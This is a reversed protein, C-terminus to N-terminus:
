GERHVVVDVDLAETGEGLRSGSVAAAGTADLAMAVRIHREEPSLAICPDFGIWGIREVYAEAWGHPSPRHDDSELAYGSVYRAPAGLVRAGAIFLHALDRPTLQDRAFAEAATLGPEPRTRAVEFREGLAANLRHLRDLLDSGGVRQAWETIEEDPATLPTHRLFLPPPLPEVAGHVVGGSHSTLVEGTVAVELSTVPGEVYLMTTLNGFGDRHARTKADCDVDIRWAAVAQDHTSPPTLRLLQVLRTQPLSFRYTTRHDVTLRM